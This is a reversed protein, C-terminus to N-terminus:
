LAIPQFIYCIKTSDDDNMTLLDLSFDTPWNILPDLSFEFLIVSVMRYFYVRTVNSLM